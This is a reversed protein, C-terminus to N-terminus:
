DEAQDRHTSPDAAGVARALEEVTLEVRQGDRLRARVTQDNSRGARDATPVAWQGDAIMVLDGMTWPRGASRIKNELAAMDRGRSPEM